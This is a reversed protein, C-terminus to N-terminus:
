QGAHIMLADDASESEFLDDDIVEKFKFYQTTVTREGFTVHNDDWAIHGRWEEVGSEPRTHISRITGGGNDIARDSLVAIRSDTTAMWSTRRSGEQTISLMAFSYNQATMAGQTYAELTEAPSILTEAPMGSRKLLIQFRGEVTADVLKGYRDLGVYHEQRGLTEQALIAQISRLQAASQMQRAQRRSSALVPLLIGILLAIIGMVVLLEVLTFGRKM